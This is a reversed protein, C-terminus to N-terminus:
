CDVVEITALMPDAAGHIQLGCERAILLYEIIAPTIEEGPYIIAIGPPQVAVVEASVLGASAELRVQRKRALWARRPTMIQAPLGPRAPPPRDGTIVTGRVKSSIGALAHVLAEVDERNVGLPLVAVINYADAMEVYINYEDALLRGAEYGSLGLGRFSVVLRTPDYDVAGPLNLHEPGLVTLGPITKIKLAAELAIDRTEDLRARGYLALQRRAADLSAMLLYSPSSSQLLRLASAVEGRDVRGGPALHLWSAQTLAGGTKHVSQVTADAGQELADPPLHPSFRLHTGHAEDALLPINYSRCIKVIEALNGVVGYYCPHVALVAVIRPESQLVQELATGTFGAAFEFWPVIQPEIFVPRAGSLVLGGLVSRHANRPLAIASGPGSCTAAILAQVGVTTGNVLFFTHRAGYLGAAKKQALEIVGSPSHLDDLGDLETVDWGPLNAKRLESYIARGGGHGPVHFRLPKKRSFHELAIVIPVESHDGSM